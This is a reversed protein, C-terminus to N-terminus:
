LKPKRTGDPNFFYPDLVDREADGTLFGFYYQPDSEARRHNPTNAHGDEHGLAWSESAPDEKVADPDFQLRVRGGSDAM